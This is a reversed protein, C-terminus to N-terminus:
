RLVYRLCVMCQFWWLAIGKLGVTHLSDLLIGLDVINISGLPEDSGVPIYEGIGNKVYIM